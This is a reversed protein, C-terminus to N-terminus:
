GALKRALSPLGEALTPHIHVSQELRRWTSGAEMHALFVHVLEAAEPGVLTAGLIRETQRDVVMRYFGLTEGTEWARAVKELPLDVARADHGKRRAQELTLGVRGVQPDTFVAYGLARDDRRRDEGALIAKLRRHDEWSVHTFQPQGAVDGIAYVGEASTRFQDDTKVFGREDTEVGAAELRLAETNPRRGTAVLLADGELREGGLELTFRQRGYRVARVKSRLHLKVGDAELAEQLVESVEPEERALVRDNRDLVHVACGLRALGQGLELGVYGGGLVLVREPRERLEWFNDSTLYPTGALGPIEPELPSTGTDILVVPAQVRVGGGEVRREGVFRAEARVLRVGAKKLRGEVGRSSAEPYGRVREMVAAFDVTVEARVGLGLREAKRARGAAHASALFAKSPTCGTNVCTGGLAGREFLVVRRGQQAWEAALPVGGQGSGIVILDASEM